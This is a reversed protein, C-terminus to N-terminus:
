DINSVPVDVIQEYTGGIQKRSVCEGDPFVTFAYNFRCSKDTSLISEHPSNLVGASQAGYCLSDFGDTITKIFSIFYLNRIIM